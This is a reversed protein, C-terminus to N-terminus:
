RCGSPLQRSCSSRSSLVQLRREEATSNTNFRAYFVVLLPSAKPRSHHVFGILHFGQFYKGVVDSRPAVEAGHTHVSKLLLVSQYDPPGVKRKVWVSRVLSKSELFEESTGRLALLAEVERRM